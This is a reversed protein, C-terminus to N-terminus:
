FNKPKTKRAACEAIEHIRKQRTEARKALVIWQLMMKRISKSLSLFYDESGEQTKFAQALDDPIILEEVQDLISWSGNQKATEIVDNTQM